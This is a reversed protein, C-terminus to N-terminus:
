KYVMKKMMIKHIYTSSINHLITTVSSVEFKLKMICVKASLEVILTMSRVHNKKMIIPFWKSEIKAYAWNDLYILAMYLPGILDWGHHCYDHVSNWAFAKPVRKRERWIYASPNRQKFPKIKCNSLHVMQSILIVVTLAM